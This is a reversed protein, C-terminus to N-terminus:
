PVAFRLTPGLAARVHRAARFVEGDVVPDVTEPPTPVLELVTCTRDVVKRGWLRTGLVVNPLNGAIAWPSLGAVQAHLRTQDEALRFARVVGGLDIDISGVQVSTLRSFPVPEGDLTVTGHTPAYLHEIKERWDAPVVRRLRRASLVPPGLAGLALIEAIHAPRVPKREYLVDFFRQAIGCLAAAFGLRVLPADEAVDATLRLTRLRQTPPPRGAELHARLRAVLDPGATRIGLKRAVFDISGSRTPMFIPTDVSADASPRGRRADWASLLWGLTGDGGDAVYYRCGEAEFRDLVDPLDDVSRTEVVVGFRGAAARLADTRGANRGGAAQPNTVIGIEPM